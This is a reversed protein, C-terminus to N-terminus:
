EIFHITDISADVNTDLATGLDIAVLVAQLYRILNALPMSFNKSAGINLKGHGGNSQSHTLEFSLVRCSYRKQM